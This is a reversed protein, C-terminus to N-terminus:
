QKSKLIGALLCAWGAIFCLGGLPTVPGLFSPKSGMWLAGTSLMYISGSFLFIGFTFLFAATLLLKNQWLQYLIAAILIAFTHYMQYSVGTRYSELSADPIKGTLGHAGFAGLIVAVMGFIAALILYKRRDRICM